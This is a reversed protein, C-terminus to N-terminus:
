CGSPELEFSASVQAQTTIRGPEYGAEAGSPAAKMASMMVPRPMQGGNEDLSLAPGLKADLGQAILAAKHRADAVAAALAQDALAQPDAPRAEINTIQNVGAKVLGEVLDAYHSPDRLTLTLNRTVEYVQPEGPKADSDYVPSISLNTSQIDKKALGASKAAAVAAAASKDVAANASRVDTSRQSIGLHFVYVGPAAEANGEGSVSVSRPTCNAAARAGPAAACAGAILLALVFSAGFKTM